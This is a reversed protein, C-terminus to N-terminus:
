EASMQSNRTGDQHSRSGRSATPKEASFITMPALMKDPALRDPLDTLAMSARGAHALKIVFEYAKCDRVISQGEAQTPVNKCCGEFFDDLPRHL